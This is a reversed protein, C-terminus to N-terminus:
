NSLTEVVCFFSYIKTLKNKERNFLSFSSNLFFSLFPPVLNFFGKRFINIRKCENCRLNKNAKAHISAIQDGEDAIKNWLGETTGYTM